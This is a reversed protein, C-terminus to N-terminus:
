EVKLYYGGTKKSGRREILNKNILAKLYKDMTDIPINLQVSMEKGKIGENQQIYYFVKIQGENLGKILEENLGGNLGGNLKGDLKGNVTGYLIGNNLTVTVNLIGNKLIQPSDYWTRIQFM